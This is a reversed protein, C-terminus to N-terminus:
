AARSRYGDMFGPTQSRLRLLLRFFFFCYRSPDVEPELDLGTVTCATHGPHCEIADGCRVEVVPGQAQDSPVLLYLVLQTPKSCLKEAGTYREAVPLLCCTCWM